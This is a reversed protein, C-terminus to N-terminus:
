PQPRLAFYLVVSAALMFVFTMVAVQAAMRRPHQDLRLM